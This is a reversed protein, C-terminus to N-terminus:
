AACRVAKSSKSGKWVTTEHDIRKLFERCDKCPANSHYSHQGDFRVGCRWCTRLDLRPIDLGAARREQDYTRRDALCEECRCKKENVMPHRM